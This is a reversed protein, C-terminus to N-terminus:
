NWPRSVLSVSLLKEFCGSRGSAYKVVVLSLVGDMMPQNLRELGVWRKRWKELSIGFLGWVQRSILVVVDNQLHFVRRCTAIVV